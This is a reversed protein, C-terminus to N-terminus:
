TERVWRRVQRVARPARPMSTVRSYTGSSMLPNEPRIPQVNPARRIAPVRRSIRAEQWARDAARHRAYCVYEVASSPEAGLMMLLGPDASALPVFAEPGTGMAMIMGSMRQGDMVRM